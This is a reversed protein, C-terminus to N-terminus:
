RTPRLARWVRWVSWGALICLLANRLALAFLAISPGPVQLQFFFIPFEVFTLACCLLVTVTVWRSVATLCCCVALPGILWLLYQPSLVKSVILLASVVAVLWTSVWTARSRGPSGCVATVTGVETSDAADAAPEARRRYGTGRREHALAACAGLLVVVIIGVTTIMLATHTGAGALDVSEQFPGIAVGGSSPVLHQYLLIPTAPVAEIELGRGGHFTALYRTMPWLIRLTELAGSLVAVPFVAWVAVRRRAGRGAILPLLALAPWLKMTAGVSLVAAARGPRTEAIFVFAWVVCVVALLDNHALSLGGFAVGSLLWLWVGSSGGRRLRSLRMLGGTTLADVAVILFLWLLTFAQPPLHVPGPIAVAFLTGPPYEYGFSRWPLQGSAMLNHYKGYLDTDSVLLRLAPTFMALLCTLLMAARSIVWAWWM